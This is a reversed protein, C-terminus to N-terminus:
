KYSGVQKDGAGPVRSKNEDRRLNQKDLGYIEKKLIERIASFFVILQVRRRDALVKEGGALCAHPL